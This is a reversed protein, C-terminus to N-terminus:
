CEPLLLTETELLSKKQAFHALCFFCLSFRTLKQFLSRDSWTMFELVLGERFKEASASKNLFFAGTPRSFTRIPFGALFFFMGGWCFIFFFVSSLDCLCSIELHRNIYAHRLNCKHSAMFVCLWLGGGGNPMGSAGHCFHICDAGAEGFRRHLFVRHSSPNHSTM